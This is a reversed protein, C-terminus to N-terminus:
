RDSILWKGKEGTSYIMQRVGTQPMNKEKAYAKAAEESRFTKPRTSRKRNKEPQYRKYFFRSGMNELSKM